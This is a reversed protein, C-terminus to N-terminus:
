FIVLYTLSVLFGSQNTWNQKKLTRSPITYFWGGSLTFKGLSYQLPLILSINQYDFKRKPVYQGNHYGNQQNGWVNDITAPIWFNTGSSGTLTPSVVLYGSKFIFGDFKFDYSLSLDFFYNNTPGIMFTNDLSATFGKLLYSGSLALAHKYSIGEYALDGRFIRNTYSFDIEFKDNFSKEYGIRLEVEYTNSDPALYKFYDGAVRLGTNSYYSMNAMLAPMRIANTLRTNNNNSTYSLSTLMFSPQQALASSDPEVQGGLRCPLMLLLIYFLFTRM